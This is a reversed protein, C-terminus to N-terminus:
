TNDRYVIFATYLRSIKRVDVHLERPYRMYPCKEQKTYLRAVVSLIHM